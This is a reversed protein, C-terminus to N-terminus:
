RCISQSSCFSGVERDSLRGRDFHLADTNSGLFIAVRLRDPSKYECPISRRSRAGFPAAVPTRPGHPATALRGQDKDDTRRRTKKPWAHALIRIRLASKQTLVTVLVHMLMALGDFLYSWPFQLTVQIPKPSQPEPQVQVANPTTAGADLFCLSNSRKQAFFDSWEGALRRKKDIDVPWIRLFGLFIASVATAFGSALAVVGVANSHDV